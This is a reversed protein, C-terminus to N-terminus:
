SAGGFPVVGADAGAPVGALQLAQGLREQFDQVELDHHERERRAERDLRKVLLLALDLRACLLQRDIPENGAEKVWDITAQLWEIPSITDYPDAPATTEFRYRTM